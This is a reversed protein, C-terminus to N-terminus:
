TLMVVVFGLESSYFVCNVFLVGTVNQMVIWAGIILRKQLYMDFVNFDHSSINIICTDFSMLCWHQYFMQIDAFSKILSWM